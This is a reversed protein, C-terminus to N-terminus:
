QFAIATSMGHFSAKATTLKNDDRSFHLCVHFEPLQEGTNNQRIRIAYHYYLMNTSAGKIAFSPTGLVNEVERQTPLLPEQPEQPTARADPVYLTSSLSKEQKDVHGEGMSQLSGKLLAPKLHKSFSKPFRVQSLKGDQFHLTISLPVGQVSESANAPFLKEFTYKLLSSRGSRAQVAAEGELLWIVDDEQLIPELLQMSLGDTEDIRM